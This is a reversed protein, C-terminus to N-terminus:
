VPPVSDFRLFDEGQNIDYLKEEIAKAKANDLAKQAKKVKPCTFVKKQKGSCRTFKGHPTKYDPLNGEILLKLSEARITEKIGELKELEAEIQSLRESLIELQGKAICRHHLAFLENSNLQSLMTM